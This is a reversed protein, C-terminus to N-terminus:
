HAVADPQEQVAALARRFDEARARFNPYADFSSCAPSFLIAGGVPTLAFGTRVAENVSRVCRVSLGTPALLTELETAAEGFLIVRGATRAAIRALETYDQDKKRGGALWTCGSSRLALAELAAGTSEPTTSVANDHVERGAHIGLDEFRHPLGRVGRLAPALRSAPLGLLRALALAIGANARQFDGPLVLDTLEALREGALEFGRPGVTLHAADNAGQQAVLPPRRDVVVTRGAPARLGALRADDAPVVLDGDGAILELIRLKAQAYGEIGGHRELHDPLINTLAVARVRAGASRPDNLAALQYSSLELVVVDDAAIVDLAELLSGGLNGGLHARRGAGRVLGALLHCTSSKGQTGTVCVVEAELARLTLEIESTLRAGARRARELLPHAPAVAPNVVVVEAREFDVERHRGLVCEVDCDALAELAPALAEAPRLDTVTVRAGVHALWRAVGLGGGFSGLGMVLVRTDRWDTM